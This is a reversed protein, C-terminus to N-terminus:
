VNRHAELDWRDCKYFSKSRIYNKHIYTYLNFFQLLLVFLAILIKIKVFALLM